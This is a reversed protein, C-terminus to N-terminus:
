EARFQLGIGGGFDRSLEGQDARPLLLMTKLDISGTVAYALGFGISLGTDRSPRTLALGVVPGLAVDRAVQFWVHVPISLGYSSPSSFVVPIFFGTDIRVDRAVHFALPMGFMLGFRTGREIPFVARGELALEMAYGRIPAVRLRLEPNAVTDAGAAFTERDFLRGFEDARLDRYSNAPRMGTRVGLEFRHGVAFAGELHVGIATASQAGRDDHAIGAGVDFAADHYPLTIPRSVFAPAAGAVSPRVGWSLSAAVVSLAGVRAPARFRMM